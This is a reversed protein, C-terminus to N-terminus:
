REGKQEGSAFLGRVQELELEGQERLAAAVREVADWDRALLQEALHEAAPLANNVRAAGYRELLRRAERRDHEGARRHWTGM